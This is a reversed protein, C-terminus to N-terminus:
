RQDTDAAVDGGTGGSGRAPDLSGHVVRGSVRDRVVARDAGQQVGHVAGGYTGGVQVEHHCRLVLASPSLGQARERKSM